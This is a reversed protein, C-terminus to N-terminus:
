GHRGGPSPLASEPTLHNSAVGDLPLVLLQCAPLCWLCIMTPRVRKDAEHGTLKHGRSRTPPKTPRSFPCGLNRSGNALPLRWRYLLRPLGRHRLSWSGHDQLMPPCLSSGGSNPYLLPRATNGDGTMPRSGRSVWHSPLLEAHNRLRHRPRILFLLLVDQERCYQPKSLPWSFCPMPLAKSYCLILHMMRSIGQIVRESAFVDFEFLPERRTNRAM